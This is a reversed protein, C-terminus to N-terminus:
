RRKIWRALAIIADALKDKLLIAARGLWALAALYGAQSAKAAQHAGFTANVLVWFCAPVVYKAFFATALIGTLVVATTGVTGELHLVGLFEGFHATASSGELLALISVARENMAAEM